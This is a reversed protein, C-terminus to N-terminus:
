TVAACLDALLTESTDSVTRGHAANNGASQLRAAADRADISLLGLSSCQDILQDLGERSEPPLGRLDKLYAEVTARCMVALEPAMGLAYCRAVRMLYQSAKRGPDSLLRNLLSRIRDHAVDDFRVTTMTGGDIDVIEEYIGPLERALRFAITTKYLCWAGASNELSPPGPDLPQPEADGDLFRAIENKGWQEFAKRGKTLHSPVLLSAGQPRVLTLAIDVFLKARTYAERLRQWAEPSLDRSCDGRELSYYNVGHEFATFADSLAVGPSNLWWDEPPEPIVYESSDGPAPPDFDPSNM